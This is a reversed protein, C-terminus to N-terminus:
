KNCFTIGELIVDRMVFDGGGLVIGDDLQVVQESRWENINNSLMM